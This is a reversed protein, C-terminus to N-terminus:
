PDYKFLHQKQQEEMLDLIKRQENLVKLPQNLLKENHM